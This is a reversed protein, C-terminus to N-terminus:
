DVEKKILEQLAFVFFPFNVSCKWVMKVYPMENKYWLRGRWVNASLMIITQHYQGERRKEHQV